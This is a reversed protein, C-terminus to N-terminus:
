TFYRSIITGGIRNTIKSQDGGSFMILNAQKILTISEPKESDKKSRINLINVNKCGLTSFATMYNKGVEKPISSATPIVVINAEIGGAQEVVHYLIGEDIFELTHKEDTGFGKDENGGIPILTGKVNQM